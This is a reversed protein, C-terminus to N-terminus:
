GQPTTQLLDSDASLLAQLERYVLPKALFGDAGAQRAAERREWLVDATLVIIRPLTGYEARIRRTAELGDMTPMHLDMFM